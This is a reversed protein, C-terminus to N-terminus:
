PMKVFRLQFFNDGTQAVDIDARTAWVVVQQHLPIYAFDDKVLTLADGIEANRKTPDLEVQIEKILKDLKPNSYGGMNYVGDKGQRTATLARLADLADYTGPTWGLMYFSTEFRPANVKAFFKSRTQALLDAKVGIRALMAVVAQCIAEDNVYRDNPCDFGVEFGNPYGADALLKKAAEPDYPFRKDLAPDYGNVGPGVLLATPHAYGRMVKAAIANENIAQYFAQRVRKDKFPNKGKVNSELLEDRSQDMGLVITRLEPTKWIKMGATKEIRDTDQPPVTYVMDLEGSLLASIRTAANEIRNFVVEDIDIPEDKLGWWNPNKVLVTRVDPQRDKLMFPGTGNANRTAYNEENKTMDAARTTNHEECWKESMIAFTPMNYPLIPDPGDTDFDVTFDDIKKVDKVTGLPAALNSGPHTARDFSFLVDDATFPTGDHFKVGQRLKFRWVTPEIRNWETALGPELKMQRNRRILPEYMSQDFLLLFTEQRAYPDMSNSDGDNAWRFTRATAADGPAAVSLGALTLLACVGNRIM